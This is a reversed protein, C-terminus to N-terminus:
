LILLGGTSYEPWLSLPKILCFPPPSLGAGQRKVRPRASMPKGMPVPPTM